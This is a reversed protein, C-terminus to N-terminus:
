PIPHMLLWLHQRRFNYNGPEDACEFLATCWIAKFGSKSASALIVTDVFTVIAYYDIILAKEEVWTL